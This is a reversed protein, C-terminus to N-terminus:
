SKQGGYRLIMAEVGEDSFRPVFVRASFYDVHQPFVLHEAKERRRRQEEKRRQEGEREEKLENVECLTPMRHQSTM